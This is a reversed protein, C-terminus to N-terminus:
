GPTLSCPGVQAEVTGGGSTGVRSSFHGSSGDDEPMDAFSSSRVTGGGGLVGPGKIPTVADGIAAWLKRVTILENYGIFGGSSSGLTASKEEIDVPCDKSAGWTNGMTVVVLEVDPAAIIFKGLWGM